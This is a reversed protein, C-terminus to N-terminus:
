TRVISTSFRHNSCMPAEQILLTAPVGAANVAAVSDELERVTSVWYETGRTITLSPGYGPAAVLGVPILLTFWRLLM